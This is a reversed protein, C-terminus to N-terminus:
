HIGVGVPNAPLKWVGNYWAGAGTNIAEGQANYASVRYLILGTDPATIVTSTIATLTDKVMTWATGQNVSQYIKYGTAGQVADWKLTIDVAKADVFPFWLMGIVALIILKKM